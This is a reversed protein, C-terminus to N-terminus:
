GSALKMKAGTSKKAVICGPIWLSFMIQYAIVIYYNISEFINNKSLINRNKFTFKKFLILRLFTICYFTKLSFTKLAGIRTVYTFNCYLPIYHRTLFLNYELPRIALRTGFVWFRPNRTKSIGHLFPYIFFVLQVLSKKLKQWIKAINSSKNMSSSALLVAFNQFIMLYALFIAFFSSFGQEIHWLDM